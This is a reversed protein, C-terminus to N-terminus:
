NGADRSEGAGIERQVRGCMPCNLTVYLRGDIRAIVLQEGRRGVSRVVEAESGCNPCDLARPVEPILMLSPSRGRVDWKAAIVAGKVSHEKAARVFLGTFLGGNRRCSAEHLKKM